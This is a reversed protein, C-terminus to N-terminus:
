NTSSSLALKSSAACKFPRRCDLGFKQKVDRVRQAILEVVHGGAREMVGNAEATDVVDVQNLFAFRSQLGSQWGVSAPPV